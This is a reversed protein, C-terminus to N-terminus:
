EKSRLRCFPVLNGNEWLDAITEEPLDKNKMGQSLPQCLIFASGKNEVKTQDLGCDVSVLINCLWGRGAGRGGVFIVQTLKLTRPEGFSM